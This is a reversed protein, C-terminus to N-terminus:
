EKEYCVTITVSVSTAVSVNGRLWNVPVNLERLNDSTDTSLTFFNTGDNSGELLVTGTTIGEVQITKLRPFHYSSGTGTTTKASMIELTVVKQSKDTATTM